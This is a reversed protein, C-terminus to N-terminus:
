FEIWSINNIELMSIDDQCMDYIQGQAIFLFHVTQPCHSKILWRRVNLLKWGNMQWTITHRKKIYICWDSIHYKQKNYYYKMKNSVQISMKSVFNLWLRIHNLYIKLFIKLLLKNESATCKHTKILVNIAARKITRVEDYFSSLLDPFEYKSM